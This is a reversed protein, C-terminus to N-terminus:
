RLRTLSADCSGVKGAFVGRGRTGSACYSPSQALELVNETPGARWASFMHDLPLGIHDDDGTSRERRMQMERYQSRVRIIFIRSIFPDHAM